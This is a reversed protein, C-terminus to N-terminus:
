LGLEAAVFRDAASSGFMRGACFPGFPSRFGFTGLTPNPSVEEKASRRGILRVAGCGGSTPSFLPRRSMQM